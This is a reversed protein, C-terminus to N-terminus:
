LLIRAATARHACKRAAVFAAFSQDAMLHNDVLHNTHARLQERHGCLKCYVTSYQVTSYRTHLPRAPRSCLARCLLFGVVSTPRVYLITRYLRTCLVQVYM